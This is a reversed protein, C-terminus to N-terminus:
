QQIMTKKNYLGLSVCVAICAYTATHLFNIDRMPAYIWFRESSFWWFCYYVHWLANMRVPHVYLDIGSVSDIFHMVLYFGVAITMSIAAFLTTTKFSSQM